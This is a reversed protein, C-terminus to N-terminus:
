RRGLRPTWWPQKVEMSTAGLPHSESDYFYLDIAPFSDRVQAKRQVITPGDHSPRISIALAAPAARNIAEVLHSDEGRLGCGFIALGGEHHALRELAFALYSSREIARRKGPGDGESVLLPVETGASTTQFQDLLNQSGAQLKFVAGSVDRRLHLAGHLFLLRTADAPVYRPPDTYAPDFRRGEPWFFDIIESKQGTSMAAWYLILDYNITYVVRFERMVERIRVLKTEFGLGHGWPVHAASVSDFLARQISTYREIVFQPDRSMAQLTRRTTKLASLVEEFNTTGFADFLVADEETFANRAQAMDFLSRYAFAKWFAISAGNGTLLGTWEVLGQVEGWSLLDGQDLPPYSAAPARAAAAPEAAAM